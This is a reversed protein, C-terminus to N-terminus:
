YPRAKATRSLDLRHTTGLKRKAACEAFSTRRSVRASFLLCADFVRAYHSGGRKRYQSHADCDGPMAGLQPPLGGRDPNRRWCLDCHPGFTDTTKTQLGSRRTACNLRAPNRPFNILQMLTQASLAMNDTSNIIYDIFQRQFLVILFLTGTGM